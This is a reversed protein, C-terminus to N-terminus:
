LDTEVDNSKWDPIPDRVSGRHSRQQATAKRRLTDYKERLKMPTLIHAQWFDDAHAWDIARKAQDVTIGDKDLLLRAAKRWAVTITPKSSGTKVLVDALHDCVADVDPRPLPVDGGAAAPKRRARKPREGDDDSAASSSSTTTSSTSPTPRTIEVRRGAYFSGGEDGSPPHNEGGKGKPEEMFAPSESGGEDHTPHSNEGGKPQTPPHNGGAKMPAGNAPALHLFRFKAIKGNFGGGAPELVKEEKLKAIVRRMSRDDPVMAQRMIEPDTIASWTLRTQDNADDALVMAALKERPTLTSPAYVKVERYLEYGM